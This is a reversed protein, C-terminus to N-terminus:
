RSCIIGSGAYFKADTSIHGDKNEGRYRIGIDNRRESCRKEAEENIDDDNRVKDNQIKNVIM